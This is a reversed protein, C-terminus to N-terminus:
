DARDGDDEVVNFTPLEGLVTIKQELAGLAPKLEDFEWDIDALRNNLRREARRIALFKSRARRVEDADSNSSVEPM